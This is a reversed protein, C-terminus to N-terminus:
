ITIGEEYERLPKQEVRILNQIAYGREKAQKVLMTYIEEPMYPRRCLIWLYNPSSSGVLAYEYNVTDLELVLYDAYFFLFFSVKLHGIGTTDAIKAKGEITKYKGEFSGKYGANEVKIKGDSRLSYTATVGILEKEFSHPFRAIEYWSGLYRDLEFNAVPKNDIVKKDTKDANICSIFSILVSIAVIKM